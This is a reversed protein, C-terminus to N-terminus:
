QGGTTAKATFLESVAAVVAAQPIREQEIRVNNAVCFNFAAAEPETLLPPIERVRNTGNVALTDKWRHLTTENMLFSRTQPFRIRLRSLIEFGEVDLDGWYWISRNSLWTVYTLDIIGNGLGGMAIASRVPPFTLLNVKNEVIFVDNADISSEALLRLPLSCERWPSGFSKQLEPDLFRLLM